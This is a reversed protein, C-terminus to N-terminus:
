NKKSIRIYIQPIVWTIHYGSELIAEKGGPIWARTYNEGVTFLASRYSWCSITSTHNTIESALGYFTNCRWNEKLDSRRLSTLERTILVRLFGVHAPVLAVAQQVHSHSIISASKGSRTLCEPSQLSLWCRSQFTVFSKVLRVEGSNRIWM